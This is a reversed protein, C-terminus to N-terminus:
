HVPPLKEPERRRQAQVSAKRPEGRLSCKQRGGEKLKCARKTPSEKKVSAASAARREYGMVQKPTANVYGHAMARGCRTENDYAHYGSFGNELRSGDEKLMETWGMKPNMRQMWWEHLLKEAEEKNSRDADTHEATNYEGNHDFGKFVVETLAPGAKKKNKGIV